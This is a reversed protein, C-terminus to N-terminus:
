LILDSEELIEASKLIKDAISKLAETAEVTEEILECVIAIASQGTQDRMNDSAQALLKKLHSAIDETENSIEYVEAKFTRMASSERKVIHNM